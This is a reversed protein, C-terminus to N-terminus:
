PVSEARWSGSVASLTSAPGEGSQQVIAEDLWFEQSSATSRIQWRAYNLTGSWMPEHELRVSTWDTDVAASQVWRQVGEGSSDVELVLEVTEQQDAMKLWLESSVEFGSLLRATIDQQIGTSPTDRDTVLVSAAGEHADTSTILSTNAGLKSWGAAGNEMDGNTLLNDPDPFSAYGQPPKAYLLPDAALISDQDIRVEGDALICGRIKNPARIVTDSLNVGVDGRIIHLLGNLSATYSDSLDNDGDGYYPTTAPNFNVGTNAEDLDGSCEIMVEGSYDATGDVLLAPYDSRAPQWLVRPGISLTAYRGLEVLLTGEIRCDRITLSQYDALQIRYVGDPNAVTGTTPAQDPSVLADELVLDSGSGLDTPPITSALAEYVAYVISSPMTKPVPLKTVTGVVSDPRDVSTVEVDGLLTGTAIQLEDNATAPGNRVDLSCTVDLNGGAHVASRLADLPSGAPWALMSFVRQSSGVTGLGYIRVPDDPNDTLDGDVPDELQWRITGRGLALPDSYNGAVRDAYATRWDPDNGLKTLAYEVASSALVASENWDRQMSADQEQIRLRQFGAFAIVTVILSTFLVM